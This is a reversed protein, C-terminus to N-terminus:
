NRFNDYLEIYRSIVSDRDFFRLSKEKIVEREFRSEYLNLITSLDQSIKGSLSPWNELHNFLETMGGVTTGLVPTGELLSEIIVNPRNDISSTVLLLDMASLLERARSSDVAGINIAQNGLELPRGAGVVLAKFPINRNVCINRLEKIIEKFYGFNKYSSDLNAAAFGVVFINKSIGLSQRLAERQSYDRKIVKPPLNPISLVKEPRRALVAQAKHLLFESPAVFVVNDNLGLKEMRKKEESVNNKFSARVMPCAGCERLFEVCNRDHHCGGTLFRQDHLHVIIKKGRNALNLLQDTRIFNYISHIHFISDVGLLEEDSVRSVSFTTILDESSQVVKQQVM